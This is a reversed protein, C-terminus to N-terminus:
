PTGVWEDSGDEFLQHKWIPVEAKLDDVLQRCAAFADGRHACSVAAVVAVDGVGLDGTRHVAAVAIVHEDAAVREAVTRLAADAAPHATYGLATVAKADDHRRVTGVFMAVGGAAPDVVADYVAGIDLASDCIELLRIKDSM